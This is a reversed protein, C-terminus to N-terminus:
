GRNISQVTEDCVGWAVIIRSRKIAFDAIPLVRLLTGNLDGARAARCSVLDVVKGIANKSTPRHM